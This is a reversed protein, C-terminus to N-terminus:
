NIFTTMMYLTSLVTVIVPIRCKITRFKAIWLINLWM